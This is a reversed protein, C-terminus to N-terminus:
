LEYKGRTLRTSVADSKNAPFNLNWCQLLYPSLMM